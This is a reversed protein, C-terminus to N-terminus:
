PVRRILDGASVGLGKALRDLNDLTINREGRELAGVYARHLKTAAALDEQSWGREARIRRLNDALIRRSQALPRRSAMHASERSSLRDDVVYLYRAIHGDM